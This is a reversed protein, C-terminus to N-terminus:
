GIGYQKKLVDGKDFKECSVFKFNDIPRNRDSILCALVNARADEKNKARGKMVIIRNASYDKFKVVYTHFQDRNPYNPSLGMEKAWNMATSRSVGAAKASERFSYGAEHCRKFTERKWEPHRFAQPVM